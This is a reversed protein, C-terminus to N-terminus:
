VLTEWSKRYDALYQEKNPLEKVAALGATKFKERLLPNVILKNIASVLAAQDGVPAVLGSEGNFVLEGACGVDTMVVPCGCAMAEVVTMGWGEYNSTLLFLDATKYYSVLDDSWPELIINDKLKLNEIKFKLNNKESGSGVIIIGTKPYKKVVEVMAKIALGINKEESLRSAMLIIFDFQPYKQRLNIKVPAIKFKELDVFIPLVVIRSNNIFFASHLLSKKIRESVVRLGDASPLLFRALLVRIKNIFSEQWFYSSLFDGHIQCQWPIKYRRKILWGLHGTDFPDQTMVLDYKDEKTIKRVLGLADFSYKIRCCSGTAFVSLNGSIIPEFSQRTLVVVSLKECFNAYEKLRALSASGPEFINKDINIILVKM